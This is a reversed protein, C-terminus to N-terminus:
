KAIKNLIKQLKEPMKPDYGVMQDVIKGNKDIVFLTPIGRVGYDRSVKSNADIMIPFTLGNKKVNAKVDGEGDINIGLFQVPKKSNKAWVKQLEPLERQCPGCWTAWFSIVVAKKGKYDSLKVTKGDLTKLTFKPASQGKVAIGQAIEISILFFLLLVASFPLIKVRKSDM